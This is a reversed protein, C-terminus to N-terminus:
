FRHFLLPSADILSYFLNWITTKLHMPFGVVFTEEGEFLEGFINDNDVFLIAREPDIEVNIVEFFRCGIAIERDQQSAILGLITSQFVVKNIVSFLFYIIKHFFDVGLFESESVFLYGPKPADFLM